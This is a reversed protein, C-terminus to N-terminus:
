NESEYDKGLRKEITERTAWFETFCWRFAEIELYGYKLMEEYWERRYHEWMPKHIDEFTAKDGDKAVRSIIEQLALNEGSWWNVENFCDTEDFKIKKRKCKRWYKLVDDIEYQIHKQEEIDIFSQSSLVITQREKSFGGRVILYPYYKVADKMTDIRLVHERSDKSCIRIESKALLKEIDEESNESIWLHDCFDCKGSFKSM